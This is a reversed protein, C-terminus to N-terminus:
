CIPVPRNGLYWEVTRRLGESFTVSRTWGLETRIRSADIAYRRDNGPRDAVFVIRDRYSGNSLPRREDLLGCIMNVVERVAYQNEGGVLYSRGIRGRKLVAQLASVHDDVFLWDRIQGGDGHVTIPEGSLVRIITKPILKEPYQSPGYNNSCNTIVTPFGYTDHWTRVLHDAAAKSASYPNHPMYPTEECFPADTPGLSGYVEDTSIHLFRFRERSAPPLATWYARGAELMTFTGVINTGVFDDPKEISRDVHSEAALNVVQDPEFEAYAANMGAVDRIDQRLFRYRSSHEVGRLSDLNGAYTLVDVNLVEADTKTLLHRILHSGIFGAGGTILIRPANM